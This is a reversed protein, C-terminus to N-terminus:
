EVSELVMYGSLKGKKDFTESRITGVEPSYWEVASMNMKVFGIESRADYSSRICDFSGAPTEITELADIRRNSIHVSISILKLGNNRVVATVKGDKLETGAKGDLPLDMHEADVEVEMSEYASMTAPDLFKSTSFYLVGNKCEVKVENDFLAEGKKDSYTSVFVVESWDDKVTKEKYSMESSGTVKGKKDYNMYKM